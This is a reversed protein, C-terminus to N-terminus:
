LKKRVFTQNRYKEATGFIEGIEKTEKDDVYPILAIRMKQLYKQFSENVAKKILGYLKKEEIKMEMFFM